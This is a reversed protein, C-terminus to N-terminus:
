QVIAHNTMAAAAQPDATVPTAAKVAAGIAPGHNFGVSNVYVKSMIYNLAADLFWVDAQGNTNRWVLRLTSNGNTDASLTEAIYGAYPGYEKHFAVNLTPDVGWLSISNDTKRWLVYTYSNAAATIAIPDYDPTSGYVHSAVENLNGDLEM